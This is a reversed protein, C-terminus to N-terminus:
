NEELFKKIIEPIETSEIFESVLNRGSETLEVLDRKGRPAVLIHNSILHTMFKKAFQVNNHAEGRQELGRKQHLTQESLKLLIKRVVGFGVHHQLVYISPISDVNAGHYKLYGLADLGTLPIARSGDDNNIFIEIMDKDVGNFVAGRLVTHSFNVNLLNSSHFNVNTLNAFSFDIDDLFSNSFNSSTLNAYKLQIKELVSNSFNTGSLDSPQLETSLIIERLKTGNLSIPTGTIYQLIKNIPDIETSFLPLIGEWMLSLVQGKGSQDSAKWISSLSEIHHKKTEVSLSSAFIKMADSIPSKIHEIQKKTLSQLLRETVLYERLSNHSFCWGDQSRIKARTLTASSRIDSFYRDLIAAKEHHNYRGLEKKFHSNILDKFDQEGIISNEKENLFIALDQLIRRRSSPDLEPSRGLDRLMLHDIILEFLQYENINSTNKPTDSKILTEIIELLYNIIVPKGSLSRADGAELNRFIRKLINIVLDRGSQNDILIRNILNETQEETLDRLNREFRELFHETLLTDVEKEHELIKLSEEYHLYNAYSLRRYLAEFVQLEETETFYNPRSTLIGKAGGKALIALTELCARRERSLLYQAMEDYGDLLLIIKGKQILSTIFEISIHGLANSDLFHHLLGQADFQRSFNRLEIRFPIPLSPDTKYREIWRLQLIKTLATKGTGYEGTIILWRHQPNENTTNFFTHLYNIANDVGYKDEFFPEEYISNLTRLDNAYDNSETCFKIYPDFREFKSFLEDYTLTKIGTATAREIVNPTFGSSSIILAESSPEKSKIMALKSLDKGYKTTNVREITAEIYVPPAFPQGIPHAVLDIEAGHIKVPGEITYHNQTFLQSIAQPLTREDFGNM